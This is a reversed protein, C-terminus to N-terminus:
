ERLQIASFYAKQGYYKEYNSSGLVLKTKGSYSSVDFSRNTWGHNGVSLVKNGGIKIFLENSGGGSSSKTQIELTSIGSLDLDREATKYTNSTYRTQSIKIKLAKGNSYQNDVISYSDSGSEFSELTEKSPIDKKWVEQLVFEGALVGRIARSSNAINSM